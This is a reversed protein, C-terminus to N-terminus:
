GNELIKTTSNYVTYFKSFPLNKLYWFVVLMDHSDEYIDLTTKEKDKKEKIILTEM